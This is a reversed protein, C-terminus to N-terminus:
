KILPLSVKAKLCPPSNDDESKIQSKPNLFGEYNVRVKTSARLNSCIIRGSFQSDGLGVGEVGQEWGRRIKTLDLIKKGKLM